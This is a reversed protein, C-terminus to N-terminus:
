QAEPRGLHKPREAQRENQMWNLGSNTRVEKVCKGSPQMGHPPDEKRRPPDQGDMGKNTTGSPRVEATPPKRWTLDCRGLGLAM